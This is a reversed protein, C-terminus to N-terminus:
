WDALKWLKLTPFARGLTTLWESDATVALGAMAGLSVEVHRRAWQGTATDVVCVASGGEFLLWKGGRVFLFGRSGVGGTETRCREKGTKLDIFLIHHSTAAALTRGDPAAALVKLPSDQTDVRCVVAPAGTALDWRTVMGALTGALLGKSDPTFAVAACRDLDLERVLRGTAAERVAMMWDIRRGPGLLVLKRDPSLVLGRLDYTFEMARVKRRRKLDWWSLRGAKVEGGVQPRLFTTTLLLHDDVFRVGQFEQRPEDLIHLRKGTRLTFVLVQKGIAAAVLEGNPSIDVAEGYIGPEEDKEVTWVPKTRADAALGLCYATHLLIVTMMPRM